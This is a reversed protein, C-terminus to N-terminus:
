MGVAIPCILRPSRTISTLEYISPGNANTGAAIPDVSASRRAPYGCYATAVNMMLPTIPNTAPASRLLFLSPFVDRPLFSEADKTASIM